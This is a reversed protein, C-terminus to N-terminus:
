FKFNASDWERGDNSYVVFPLSGEDRAVSKLLGSIYKPDTCNVGIAILQRNDKFMDYAHKFTDGICLHSEDRCSFSLWASTNPYEALLDILASAEKISPITEFALLDCGAEV